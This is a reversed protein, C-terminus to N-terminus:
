EKGSFEDDQNYDIYKKSTNYVDLVETGNNEKIYDNYENLMKNYSDKDSVFSNIVDEYLTVFSSCKTNVEGKSYFKGKCYKDLNKYSLVKDVEKEYDKFLTNWENYKEKITDYYAEVFITEYVVDRKDNFNLVSDEFKDYDSLILNMVRTTEKRDKSVNYCFIGIGAVLVGIVLCVIIIIKVKKNM